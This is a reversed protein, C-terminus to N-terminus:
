WVQDISAPAAVGDFAVLRDCIREQEQPCSEYGREGISRQSCVIAVRLSQDALEIQIRGPELRPADHPQPDHSEGFVAIGIEVQLEDPKRLIKGIEAFQSRRPVSPFCTKLVAPESSTLAAIQRRLVSM